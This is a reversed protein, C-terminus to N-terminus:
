CLLDYVLTQGYAVDPGRLGKCTQEIDYVILPRSITGTQSRTVPRSYVTSPQPLERETTPTDTIPPQPDTRVQLHARNRRLESSPTEVVYSCPTNAPQQICGLIQHGRTEVWGTQKDPLM